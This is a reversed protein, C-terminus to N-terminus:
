HLNVVQYKLELPTLVVYICGTYLSCHVLTCETGVFVLKEGRDDGEVAVKIEDVTSYQKILQVLPTRHDVKLWSAIGTALGFLLPAVEPKVKM